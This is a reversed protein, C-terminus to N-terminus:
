KEKRMRSIRMNGGKSSLAAKRRSGEPITKRNLTTRKSEQHEAEIHNRYIKGKKREKKACRQVIITYKITSDM